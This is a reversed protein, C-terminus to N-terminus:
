LSALVELNGFAKAAIEKAYAPTIDGAITIYTDTAKFNKSYYVQLDKLTVVDLDAKNGAYLDKMDAFAQKTIENNLFSKSVFNFAQEFNAINTATNAENYSMTVNSSSKGNETMFENFKHARNNMYNELIQAYITEEENAQNEVTLRSYIKGLGVNQAVILTVGNKLKYRVPAKMTSQALAANFSFLTILLFSLKQISKM